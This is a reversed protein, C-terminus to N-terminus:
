GSRNEEASQLGAAHEAEQQRAARQMADCRALAQQLEDQLTCYVSAIQSMLILVPHLM